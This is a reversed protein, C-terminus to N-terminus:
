DAFNAPRGQRAPQSRAIVVATGTGSNRPRRGRHRGGPARRKERKRLDAGFRKTKPFASVVLSAKM